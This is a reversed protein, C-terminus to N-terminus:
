IHCSTCLLEMQTHVTWFLAIWCLLQHQKSVSDWDAGMYWIFDSQCDAPLGQESWCSVFNACICVSMLCSNFFYHLFMYVLWFPAFTFICFVLSFYLPPFIAIGQHFEGTPTYWCLCPLRELPLRICLPFRTNGLPWTFQCGFFLFNSVQPSCVWGAQKCHWWLRPSAM